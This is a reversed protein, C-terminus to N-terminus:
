ERSLPFGSQSLINGHAELRYLAPDVREAKAEAPSALDASELGASARSALTPLDHPRAFSDEGFSSGRRGGARRGCGRRRPRCTSIPAPATRSRMRWRM